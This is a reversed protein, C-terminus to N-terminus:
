SGTSKHKPEYILRLFSSFRQDERNLPIGTVIGVMTNDTIGVRMQPRITMDFDGSHISKNFEVGIFNRTGAIMYHFNSNIEWSTHSSSSGFSQHVVPGTYLLTHFNNGWRKAAVFFPNFVNGTFFKGKGYNKFETMEFEHIYGLAMSTSSAESVLFTYQAALKLGNLKTGPSDASSYISFPLEVELGLRNIPAWEYEVLAEYKDFKNNDILGMGLNWEREGKRAGLDRILDIYLPEAHLVKFPEHSDEVETIYISDKYENENEVQASFSIFHFILILFSIRGTM